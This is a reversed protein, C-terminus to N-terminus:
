FIDPLKNIEQSNDYRNIISKCYDVDLIEASLKRLDDPSDFKIYRSCNDTKIEYVLSADPDMFTLDHCKLKYKEDNYSNYLILYIIDEQVYGRKDILVHHMKDLKAQQFLASLNDTEFLHDSDASFARRRYFFPADTNLSSYKIFERLFPIIFNKELFSPKMEKLM